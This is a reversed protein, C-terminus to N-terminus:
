KYLMYYRSRQKATVQVLAGQGDVLPGAAASLAAKYTESITIPCDYEGEHISRM